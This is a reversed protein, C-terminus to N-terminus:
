NVQAALRWFLTPLKLVPLIVPSSRFVDFATARSSASSGMVHFHKNGVALEHFVHSYRQVIRPRPPAAHIVERHTHHTTHHVHVEVRERVPESGFEIAALATLLCAPMSARLNGFCPCFPCYRPARAPALRTQATPVALEEAEYLDPNFPPPRSAAAGGVNVAVNVDGDQPLEPACPEPLLPEKLGM